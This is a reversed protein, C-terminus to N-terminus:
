QIDSKWSGRGLIAEIRKQLRDRFDDLNDETWSLFNYQRIDFHLKGESLIDERCTWIVPLGLGQAFGAEFYVGGRVGNEDHTFDAVVFRSRRIDAFIEDDIRNNHEKKDIRHPQYGANGIAPEIAKEWLDDMSKHFWMACFGIQSDPNILQQALYDYAAATLHIPSNAVHVDKFQTQVIGEESLTQLLFSAEDWDQLYSASILSLDTRWEIEEGLKETKKALWHILKRKREEYSPTPINQLHKLKELTIVEEQHEYVWGSINAKQRDTWTDCGRSLADINMLFKGCCPYNITCAGNSPIFDPTALGCIPCTPGSM